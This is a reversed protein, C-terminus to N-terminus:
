PSVSKITGPGALKTENQRAPRKSWPKVVSVAIVSTLLVVQLLGVTTFAVRLTHYSNALIASTAQSTHKLMQLQWPGLLAAGVVIGAIAAAWKFVVWRYRFFGLSTNKCIIFGTLASGVAGPIILVFDLYTFGRNLVALVQHDNTWGMLNQLLVISASAGLWLSAFLIHLTKIYSKARISM